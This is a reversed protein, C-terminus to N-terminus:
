VLSLKLFEDIKTQGMNKMLFRALDWENENQFPAWQNNNNKQETKKMEEFAT